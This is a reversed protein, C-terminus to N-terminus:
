RGLLGVRWALLAASRGMLLPEEGALSRTALADLVALGRLTRPLPPQAPVVRALELATERELANSTRSAFDALAWRKGANFTGKAAADIAQARANAFTDITAASLPATDLLGEWGDVLDILAKENGNWRAGLSDLVPDGMPRDAVPESLRDRWWALRIQALLPEIAKSVLIGLHADFAFLAALRDRTGPEVWALAIKLAPHTPLSSMSVSKTRAM